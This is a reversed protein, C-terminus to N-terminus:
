RGRRICHGNSSDFFITFQNAGCDTVCHKELNDTNVWIRSAMTSYEDNEELIQPIDLRICLLLTSLLLIDTTHKTFICSCGTVSHHIFFYWFFWDLPRWRLANKNGDHKFHSIYIVPYKVHCSSQSKVRGVTLSKMTETSTAEIHM